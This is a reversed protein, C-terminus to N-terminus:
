PVVEGIHCSLMLVVFHDCVIRAGLGVEKSHYWRIVTSGVADVVLCLGSCCFASVVVLSPFVWGGSRDM